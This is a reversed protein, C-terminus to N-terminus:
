LVQMEMREVQERDRVKTDYSPSSLTFIFACTCTGHACVTHRLSWMCVRVRVFFLSVLQSCIFSQMRSAFQIKRMLISNM